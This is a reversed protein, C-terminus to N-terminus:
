TAKYGIRFGGWHRGRVFIPASLDKMTVFVGGGMDRRYTQLLFRRTSRGASLGTKDDFIRRNRCNAANWVPDPGQPHSYKLNHTPLYGNRDVAACFVVRSDMQLLPEQVRPLLWDTLRTFRTTVQAPNSGPIPQYDQDFLDAFGIKGRDLAQEFLHGITTAADIALAILPSEDTEAGADHIDGVLGETLSVLTSVQDTTRALATSAQDVGGSLREFRGLVDDCIRRNDEVPEAVGEIREVLDAVTQGFSEFAALHGDITRNDASASAADRANRTSVEVLHGVMRTLADLQQNIDKTVKSTQDALQKVADAVVAFGRGAEGARAAEVGANLALLQTQVSISQIAGSAEKVRAIVATAEGLSRSFNTAADALTDVNVRARGLGERITGLVAPMGAGVEHAGHRAEGALLGIRENAQRMRHTAAVISHFTDAQLAVERSVDGVDGAVEAIAVSLEGVRAAVLRALDVDEAVPEATEVFAEIAALAHSPM